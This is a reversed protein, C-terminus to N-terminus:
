GAHSFVSYYIQEASIARYNAVIGSPSSLAPSGRILNIGFHRFPLRVPRLFRRPRGWTLEVRVKPVM